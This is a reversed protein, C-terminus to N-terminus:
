YNRKESILKHNAINTTIIFIRSTDGYKAQCLNLVTHGRNRKVNMDTVRVCLCLDTDDDEGKDNDMATIRVDDVLKGTSSDPFECLPHWPAAPTDGRCAKAGHSTLTPSTPPPPSPSTSRSSHIHQPAFSIHLPSSSFGFPSKSSCLRTEPVLNLFDQKASLNAQPNCVLEGEEVSAGNERARPVLLKPFRGPNPPFEELPLDAEDEDQSHVAVRSPARSSQSEEDM